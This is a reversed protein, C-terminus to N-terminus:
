SGPQIALVKSGPSFEARVKGLCAPLLCFHGPSLRVAGDPDDIAVGGTVLAFILCRDNLPVERTCGSDTALLTVNFFPNQALWTTQLGNESVAEAQVLGPEFDNFDISQLSQRIHLERLGGDSERRNWDFVRYTTDSNQQVEFIVSGGGIGHVRGSPLFM